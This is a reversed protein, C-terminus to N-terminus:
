RQFPVAVSHFEPFCLNTQEYRGLLRSSPCVLSASFFPSVYALLRLFGRPRLIPQFSRTAYLHAPAFLSYYLHAVVPTAAAFHFSLCLLPQFPPHSEM